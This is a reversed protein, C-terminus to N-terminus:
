QEINSRPLRRRGRIRKLENKANIEALTLPHMLLHRLELHKLLPQGHNIQMALETEDINETHIALPHEGINATADVWSKVVARNLFPIDSRCTSWTISARRAGRDMKYRFIRGDGDKVGWLEMVRLNPCAPLIETSREITDMMAHRYSSKRNFSQPTLSLRELSQCMGPTTMGTLIHDVTGICNTAFDTLFEFVVAIGVTRLMSPKSGFDLTSHFSTWETLSLQRVSLPVGLILTTAQSRRQTIDFLVDQAARREFRISRVNTLSLQMLAVADVGISRFRQRRIFFHEVIPVSPLLPFFEGHRVFMLPDGCVRTEEEIENPLDYHDESPCIYRTSKWINRQYYELLNPSRQLDGEFQFPYDEEEECFFFRHENDSPTFVALGLTIGKSKIVHWASLMGFLRLIQGAFAQNNLIRTDFGEPYLCQPYQYEPLKVRFIVEEVAALKARNTAVTAEFAPLVDEYLVVQKYLILEFFNQWDRCVRALRPLNRHDDSNAVEELIQLRIEKPLKQWSM